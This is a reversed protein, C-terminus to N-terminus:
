MGILFKFKNSKNFLYGVTYSLLSSIIFNIIVHLVPNVKGNFLYILIYIFQQHFLYISMTQTILSSWYPNSDWSIDCALVQAFIFVTLCGFIQFFLIILRDIYKGVIFMMLNERFLRYFSYLAVDSILLVIAWIRLKTNEFLSNGRKRIMFGIWFFLVFRLSTNIQLINPFPIIGIFYCVFSLILGYVLHNSFYRALIWGILYVNFLCILFWLQSPSMALLYNLLVLKFSLKLFLCTIPIVFFCAVFIYPVILRLVKKKVFHAFSDYKCKECFLYAFTYGSVMVFAYVHFTGLWESIIGLYPAEFYPNKTFWDNTWFAMSHCLVVSIMLICRVFYINKLEISKGNVKDIM